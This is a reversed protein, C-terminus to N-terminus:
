EIGTCDEGLSWKCGSDTKECKGTFGEEGPKAKDCDWVGSKERCVTCEAEDRAKAPIVMFGTVLALLAAGRLYSHWRGLVHLMLTGEEGMIRLSDGM